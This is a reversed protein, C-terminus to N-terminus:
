VCLNPGLNSRRPEILMNTVRRAFPISSAKVLISRGHIWCLDRVERLQTVPIHYDLCEM